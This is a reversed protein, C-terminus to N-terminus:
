GGAPRAVQHCRLGGRPHNIRQEGSQVFRAGCMKQHQVSEGPGAQQAPTVGGRHFMGVEPVLEAVHVQEQRSGEAGRPGVLPRAVTANRAIVAPRVVTRTVKVPRSRGPTVELSNESRAAWSRATASMSCTTM